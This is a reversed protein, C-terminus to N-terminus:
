PSARSLVSCSRPGGRVGPSYPPPLDNFDLEEELGDGEVDGGEGGEGRGVGGEVPAQGGLSSRHGSSSTNQLSDYSPLVLSPTQPYSHVTSSYIYSSSVCAVLESRYPVYVVFKYIVCAYSLVIIRFIITTYKM